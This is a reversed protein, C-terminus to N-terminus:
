QLLFLHILRVFPANRAELGDSRGKVVNRSEGKPLFREFPAIVREGFVVAIFCNSVSLNIEM